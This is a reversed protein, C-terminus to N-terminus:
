KAKKMMVETFRGIAELTDILTSVKRQSEVFNEAVETLRSSISAVSVVSKKGEELHEKEIVVDNDESLTSSAKASDSPESPILRM